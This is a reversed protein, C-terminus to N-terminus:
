VVCAMKWAEERVLEMMSVGAGVWVVAPQLQVLVALVEVLLLPVYTRVDFCVQLLLFYMYM